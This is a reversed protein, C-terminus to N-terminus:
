SEKHTLQQKTQKFLAQIEEIRFAKSTTNNKNNTPDYVCLIKSNGNPFQGIKDFVMPMGEDVFFIMKREIDFSEGYMSLFYVLLRAKYTNESQFMVDTNMQEFCLAAYLMIFLGFSGLGGTYPDNFGNQVLLKKLILCVPRLVPFQELKQRVFNNQKLGLHTSDDFSDSVSIDM